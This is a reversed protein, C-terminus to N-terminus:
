QSNVHPHSQFTHWWPQQYYVISTPPKSCTKNTWINPIDDDWSVFEYKQSPYTLWWGSIYYTNKETDLGDVGRLNLVGDHDAQHKAAERTAGATVTKANKKRRLPNPM